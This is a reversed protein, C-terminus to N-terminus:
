VLSTQRDDDAGMKSMSLVGFSQLCSCRQFCTGLNLSCPFSIAVGGLLYYQIQELKTILVTKARSYSTFTASAGM